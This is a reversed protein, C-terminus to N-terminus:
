CVLRFYKASVRKNPNKSNFNIKRQIHIPLFSNKKQFNRFGIRSTRLAMKDFMSLIWDYDPTEEFKLRHAYDLVDAIEPISLDKVLM